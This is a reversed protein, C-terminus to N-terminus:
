KYLKNNVHFRKFRREIAKQQDENITEAYFPNSTNHTFVKVIGPPLYAVGYRVHISAENDTELLHIVTEPPMHRFSMDDFIIGDHTYQQFDKLRDIHTVFLPNKFHAKVFATKGFGSGGWVLTAHKNSFHLQPHCFSEIAYLPKYVSIPKFHASLNRELTHRQMCYDRPANESLYKLAAGSDEKGLAETFISDRNVRGKGRGQSPPTGFEVFDANLGYNPGATKLTLWEAKPQEGKKCYNINEQVTGDCITWNARGKGTVTSVFVNKIIWSLRKKEKFCIFGQLHPTGTTPCTEKACILYDYITPDIPDTSSFTDTPVPNNLTFLWRKAERRSNTEGTSSVSPVGTNVSTPNSGPSPNANPVSGGGSTPDLQPAGISNGNKCTPANSNATPDRVSSTIATQFLKTPRLGPRKSKSLQLRPITRDM